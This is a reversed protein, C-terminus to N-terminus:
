IIQHETRHFNRFLQLSGHSPSFTLNRNDREYMDITMSGYIPSGNKYDFYKHYYIIYYKVSNNMNLGAFEIGYLPGM